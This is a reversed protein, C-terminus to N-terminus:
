RERKNVVANAIKMWSIGALHMAEIYQEEYYLAKLAANVPYGSSVLAILVKMHPTDLLSGIKIEAHPFERYENPDWCEADDETLILTANSAEDFIPETDQNSGILVLGKVQSYRERFDNM